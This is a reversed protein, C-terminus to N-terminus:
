LSKLLNRHSNAKSRKLGMRRRLERQCSLLPRQSNPRLLLLLLNNRMTMMATLKVILATAATIGKGIFLKRLMRMGLVMM